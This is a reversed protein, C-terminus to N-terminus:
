RDNQLPTSATQSRHQPSYKPRLPLIHRSPPSSQMIFLKMVQIIWWINNPHDLLPPILHFPCTARMPFYSIRVFIQDSFRFPLSL